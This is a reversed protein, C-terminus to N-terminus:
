RTSSLQQGTGSGDVVVIDRTVDLVQKDSSRVMSVRITHRTGPMYVNRGEILPVAVVQGSDKVTCGNYSNYDGQTITFREKGDVWVKFGNLEIHVNSQKRFTIL